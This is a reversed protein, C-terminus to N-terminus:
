LSYVAQAITWNDSVFADASSPNWPLVLNHVKASFVRDVNKSGVTGDFESGFSFRVSAINWSRSIVDILTYATGNIYLNVPGSNSTQPIAVCFHYTGAPFGSGGAPPDQQYVLVGNIRINWENAVHDWGITFLSNDDSRRAQLLTYSNSSGAPVQMIAEFIIGNPTGSVIPNV